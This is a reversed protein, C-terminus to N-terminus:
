KKISVVDTKMGFVHRTTKDRLHQEEVVGKKLISEQEKDLLTRVRDSNRSYTQKAMQEREHQSYKRFTGYLCTNAHPIREGLGKGVNKAKSGCNCSESYEGDLLQMRENHDKTGLRKHDSEEQKVSAKNVLWEDFKDDDNVIDASPPETSEFASDYVRSWYILLKQNINLDCVNRGFVGNLNERQLTWTLRWEPNRAVERIEDVPMMGESLVTNAVFLVFAFHNEKFHLFSTENPWLLTSDTRFVVRRILTAAAIENAYYEASNIYHENRKEQVRARKEAFKDIDLQIAKKRSAIKQRNKESELFEIHEEAKEVILDDEASWLGAKKAESMLEAETPVGQKRAIALEKSRVFSYLNRDEISMDKILIYDMGRPCIEEPIEVYRKDWLIQQM